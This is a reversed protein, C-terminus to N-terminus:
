TDINHILYIYYILHIICTLYLVDMNLTLANANLQDGTATGVTGGGGGLAKSPVHGEGRGGGGM